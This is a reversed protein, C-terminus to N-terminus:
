AKNKTIKFDFNQGKVYFTYYNKVKLLRTQPLFRESREFIPHLKM